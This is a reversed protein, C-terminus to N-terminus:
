IYLLPPFKQFTIPLMYSYLVAVIRILVEPFWVNM